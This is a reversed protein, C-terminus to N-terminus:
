AAPRARRGCLVVGHRYAEVNMSWLLGVRGPPPTSTSIVLDYTPLRWLQATLRADSPGLGLRPSDRATELGSPCRSAGETRQRVATTVSDHLRRWSVSDTTSWYRVISWIRGNPERKMRATSYMAARRREATCEQGRRWAARFSREGDPDCRWSSLSTADTVELLERDAEFGRPGCASFAGLLTGTLLLTSLKIM